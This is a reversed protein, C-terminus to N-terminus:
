FDHSDNVEFHYSSALRMHIFKSLSDKTFFSFGFCRVPRFGSKYVNHLHVHMTNIQWFYSSLLVVDRWLLELKKFINNYHPSKNNILHVRESEGYLTGTVRHHKWYLQALYMDTGIRKAIKFYLFYFLLKNTCTSSALLSM